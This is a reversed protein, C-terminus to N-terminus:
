RREVLSAYVQAVRRASFAEAMFDPNFIVVNPRDWQSGPKTVLSICDITKRSIHGWDIIEQGVCALNANQCAAAFRAATMSEARSHDWEVVRLRRLARAILPMPRSIKEVVRALRLLPLHSGLNSHHLFCIAESTMVRSLESLYSAVIEAEAHVLSDFSFVLDVSGDQIMPLSLGDNVFFRAHSANAFREKCADICKAALDVGIYNDCLSLLYGSWRGYGPGIELVTRIPLFNRLRPLITAEWQNDVGGWVVSWEAGQQLWRYKAGWQRENWELSPM